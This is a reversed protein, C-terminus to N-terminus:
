AQVGQYRLEYVPPPTTKNLDLLHPGPSSPDYDPHWRPHEDRDCASCWFWVVGPMGSEQTAGPMVTWGTHPCTALVIDTADCADQELLHALWDRGLQEAALYTTVTGLELGDWAVVLAFPAFQQEITLAPHIHTMRTRRDPISRTTTIM